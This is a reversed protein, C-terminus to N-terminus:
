AYQLGRKKTSMTNRHGHMNRNAPLDLEYNSNYTLTAVLTHTTKQGSTVWAYNENRKRLRPVVVVGTLLYRTSPM